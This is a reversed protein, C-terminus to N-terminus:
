DNDTPTTVCFYSLFNDPITILPVLSVVATYDGNDIRVRRFSDKHENFWRVLSETKELLFGTPLLTNTREDCYAWAILGANGTYLWGPTQGAIDSWLEFPLNGTKIHSKRQVKIDIRQGDATLGDVGALQVNPHSAHSFHEVSTSLVDGVRRLVTQEHSEGMARQTDFDYTPDPGDSSM